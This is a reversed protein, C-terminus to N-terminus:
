APAGDGQTFVRIRAEARDALVLAGLCGLGGVLLQRRDIPNSERTPKM